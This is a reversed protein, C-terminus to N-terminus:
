ARVLHPPARSAHGILFRHEVPAPLRAPEWLPEAKRTLPAFVEIPPPPLAAGILRCFHCVQHSQSDEDAGAKDHRDASHKAPQHHFEGSAVVAAHAPWSGAQVHMAPMLAQNLLIAFLALLGAFRRSRM